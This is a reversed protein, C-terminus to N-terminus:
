WNGGFVCWVMGDGRRAMGDLARSEGVGADVVVVVSASM